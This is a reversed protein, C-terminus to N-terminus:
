RRQPGPASASRGYGGFVAALVVALLLWSHLNAFGVQLPSLRPAGAAEAGATLSAALITPVFWPLLFPYTCVTTDLLNALRYRSIGFRAGSERAFEGVALIAVASHTTLLM